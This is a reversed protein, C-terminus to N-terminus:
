ERLVLMPDVRGALRAPLFTAVLAAAALVLSALLFV